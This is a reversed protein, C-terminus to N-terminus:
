RPNQRGTSASPAGVWDPTADSHVDFRPKQGQSRSIRRPANAQATEWWAHLQRLASPSLNAPDQLSILGRSWRAMLRRAARLLWWYRHIPIALVRAAFWLRGLLRELAAVSLTGSDKDSRLHGHAKRGLAVTHAPHDFAIGAFTYCLASTTEDDNLTVRAKRARREFVALFDDVDQREGTWQLNDIWAVAAVRRVVWTPVCFDSVGGIVSVLTHVLEPSLSLGMPLARM